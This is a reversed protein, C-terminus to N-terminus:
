QQTYHVKNKNFFTVHEWLREGQNVVVKDKESSRYKKGNVRGTM